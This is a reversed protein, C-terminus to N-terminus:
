NRGTQHQVQQEHAGGRHVHERNVNEATEGGIKVGLAKSFVSVIIEEKM